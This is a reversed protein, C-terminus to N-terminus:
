SVDLKYCRSRVGSVLSIPKSSTGYLARAYGSGKEMSLPSSAGAVMASPLDLRMERADKADDLTGEWTPIRCRNRSGFRM